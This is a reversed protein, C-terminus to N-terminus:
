EEQTPWLRRGTRMCGEGAEGQKARGRGAEGQRARGSHKSVQPLTLARSGPLPVEVETYVNGDSNADQLGAPPPFRPAAAQSHKIM